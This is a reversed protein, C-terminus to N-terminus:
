PLVRALYGWFILTLAIANWALFLLAGRRSRAMLASECDSSLYLFKRPGTGVLELAGDEALRVEGFVHLEQGLEVVQEAVQVSRWRLGHTKASEARLLADIRRDNGDTAHLTPARRLLAKPVANPTEMQVRVQAQGDSLDFARSRNLTLNLGGLRRSYSYVQLFLWVCQSGSWPAVMAGTPGPKVQGTVVVLQSGPTLARIECRRASALRRCLVLDNMAVAGLFLGLVLLLM